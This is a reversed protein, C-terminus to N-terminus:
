TVRNKRPLSTNTLGRSRIPLKSSPSASRSGMQGQSEVMLRESNYRVVPCNALYNSRLHLLMQESPKEICEGVLRGFLENSYNVAQLNIEIDLSEAETVESIFMGTAFGHLGYERVFDSAYCWIFVSDRKQRLASVNAQSIIYPPNDLSFLGTTYGHGLMIVRDHQMILANLSDPTTQQNILTVSGTPLSAYVAELFRTSPDEVHIVLYKFKVPMEATTTTNKM